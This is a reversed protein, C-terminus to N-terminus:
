VAWEIEFPGLYLRRYSPKAPVPIVRRFRWGFPRFGFLVHRTKRFLTLWCMPTNRWHIDVGAGVQLRYTDGHYLTHRM